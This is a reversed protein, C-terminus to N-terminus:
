SVNEVGRHRHVQQSILSMVEDETLRKDGIGRKQCWKKFNERGYKIMEDFNDFSVDKMEKWRLFNVYDIVEKIREISLEQILELLRREYGVLSKMKIM